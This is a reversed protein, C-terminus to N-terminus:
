VPTPIEPPDGTYVGGDLRYFVGSRRDPDIQRLIVNVINSLLYTKFPTPIEAAKNKREM